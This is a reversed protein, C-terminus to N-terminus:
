RDIEGLVIDLSGIVAVVDAIMEGEAMVPLASLNVFSPGRFHVREPKPGGNSKMYVGLEGKSAEIAHYVEGEPVNFGEAVILFHHILSDMHKRMDDRDPLVVKPADAKIPGPKLRELAQRVIKYSEVLERMRVKFRSWVDGVPETPVEFDYTEYGSYPEDRRLDLDVGSGRLSPGTLGWAIADERSIIGINKTRSQWITNGTVLTDFTNLADPFDALFQKVRNDFGAPLDMMLGGIRFYSPTMRGGSAAEILNLIKEREKFTFWFPTMAGMDLCSTGLWVMHSAIRQLECMLVRIVQAREPIEIGLLKEAAMVYALNNGLPNLYDMRDTIVIGQQYKKYEFLKEMGTHLYGIDPIAKIVLEGDLRLDLRLVGHTSPHQPGMSLTMQSELATDLVDFQSPINEVAVSM